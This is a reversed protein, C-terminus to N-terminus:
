DGSLYGICYALMLILVGLVLHGHHDLRSAGLGYLVAFGVTAVGATRITNLINM